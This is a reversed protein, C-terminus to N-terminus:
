LDLVVREVVRRGSGHLAHGDVVVEAGVAITEGLLGYEGVGVVIDEFGYGAELDDGSVKVHVEVLHEAIALGEVIVGTPHRDEAAYADVDDIEAVEVVVGVNVIGAREAELLLLDVELARLPEGIFVKEDDRGFFGVGVETAVPVEHSGFGDVERVGLRTGGVLWEFLFIGGVAVDVM